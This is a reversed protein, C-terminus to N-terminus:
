FSGGTPAKKRTQSSMEGGAYRPVLILLTAVRRAERGDWGPCPICPPDPTLLLHFPPTLPAPCACPGGPPVPRHYCLPAQRSKERPLATMRAAM